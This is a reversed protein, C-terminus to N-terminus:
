ASYKCLEVNLDTSYTTNLSLWRRDRGGRGWLYNQSYMYIKYVCICVCMIYINNHKRWVGGGTESLCSNVCMKSVPYFKFTTYDTNELVSHSIHSYPWPRYGPSHNLWCISHFLRARFARREDTENAKSRRASETGNEKGEPARWQTGTSDQTHYCQGEWM